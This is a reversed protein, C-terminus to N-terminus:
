QVPRARWKAWHKENADKITLLPDPTKLGPLSGIYEQMAQPRAIMNEYTFVEYPLFSGRVGIFMLPMQAQNKQWAEEIGPAHAPVQARVNAITDRVIILAYPNWGADRMRKAMDPVDPTKGAHPFSRRWVLPQETETAEPLEKDFRQGHGGDGLAGAAILIQTLMRTGSGELGYVLYAPRDSM